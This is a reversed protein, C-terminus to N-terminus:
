KGKSLIFEVRRNRSRGEESDNSAIPRRDGFGEWTMRSAEIQRTLLYNYVAQARQGSLTRNFEPDGTNDTHGHIALSFSPNQKLLESLGDLENFSEPLLIFSATEFLVNELVVPKLPEEVGPRIQELKIDHTREYGAAVEEKTVLRESYLNYGDLKVHIQYAHQLPVVLLFEGDPDSVVSDKIFLGEGGALTVLAGPLAANSSLDSIRGRIFTCALSRFPQPLELRIIDSALLQNSSGIRQDTYYASKGDLSVAMAGQDRHDNLPYGLNLPQEWSGERSKRSVFLDQSGFGPWGESRFYLSLGDAHLCPSLEDKETNINPGANVPPTWGAPGKFSMWIDYGGMGGPRDSVFYLIRGNANLSPQSEWARSNIVQGMNKPRTWRGQRFDSSYLDCGGFGGERGCATFVITKGDASIVHAGENQNSNGAWPSPASWAGAQLFSIWLDEQNGTRRTFVMMKGTADLSPLYEPDATNIMGKLPTFRFDLSDKLHELAYGTKSLLWAAKARTAADPTNLSLYTTFHEHAKAYWGQQLELQALNYWLPAQGSRVSLAAKQLVSIAEAPKDLSQWIRFLELYAERYTPDEEIAEELKLIAESTRNKSIDSKAREFLKAAKTQTQAALSAPRCMWGAFLLPFYFVFSVTRSNFRIM